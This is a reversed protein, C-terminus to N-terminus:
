FRIERFSRPLTATLDAEKWVAIHLVDEPGIVYDPGAPSSSPAIATADSASSGASPAPVANQAWALGSIVLLAVVEAKWTRKM